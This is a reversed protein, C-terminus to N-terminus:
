LGPAIWRAVGVQDDHRVKDKVKIGVNRGKDAHSVFRHDIQMSDVPQIFDTRKGHVHILDGVNMEGNSLEVIGVNLRPYYHVIRGVIAEGIGVTM